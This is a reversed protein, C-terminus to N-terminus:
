LWGFERLNYMSAQVSEFPSLQNVSDQEIVAWDIGLETATRMVSNVAVCGTGISTFKGRENIDAIDKLHIIPIRQAHKRLFTVPDEGGYQVWAVDVEFFLHEPDSNEMLIDIVRKGEFVTTFEHDHNHYCYKLDHKRLQAGIEDYLKADAKVQAIDNSPGWYTVVYNCGLLKVKEALEDLPGKLLDKNAGVAVVKLGLDDLRKKNRVVDGQLFLGSEIGQFGMIALKEMTGWFDKGAEERLLILIIGVNLTM